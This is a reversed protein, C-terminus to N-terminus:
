AQSTPAEQYDKLLKEFDDIIEIILNHKASAISKDIEAQINFSHEIKEQIDDWYGSNMSKYKAILREIEDQPINQKVM